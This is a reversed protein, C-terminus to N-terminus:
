KSVIGIIMERGKRVIKTYYFGAPAEKDSTIFNNLDSINEITTKNIKIIVDGAQVGYNLAPSNDKFAVVVVGKSEKNLEYLKILDNNVSSIEAGLFESKQLESTTNVSGDEGATPRMGLTIEVIRTEGNNYVKLKVKDGPLYKSVTWILTNADKIEKDDVSIIIDGVSLVGSDAPSGEIIQIIFAGHEFAIGMKERFVSDTLSNVYVGLWPYQVEKNSILAELINSAMDIPIAFSLGTNAGTMSAIWSNIGIVEGYINLLPGGSNGPNIAADTQIYDTAQSGGIMARGSASIVGVTVSGNFGYPNGIGIAWDGVEIKSSKGMKVTKVKEKSTFKMVALDTRKDRGLLVTDFQKDNHMTIRMVSDPKVVHNNTLVYVTEETQRFIFGSGFSLQSGDKNLADVRVVAPINDKAIERFVNQIAVANNTECNLNSLVMIFLIIVVTHVKM